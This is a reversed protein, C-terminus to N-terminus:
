GHHAAADQRASAAREDRRELRRMAWYYAWAVAIFVLVGGQAAVWYSFPWPGVPFQLYLAFYGVGFSILAWVALLVLKFGLHRVDHLAPDLPVGVPEAAPNPTQTAPM